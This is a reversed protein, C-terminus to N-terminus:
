KLNSERTQFASISSNVANIFTFPFNPQFVNRWIIIMNSVKLHQFENVTKM